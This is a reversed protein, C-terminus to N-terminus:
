SGSQIYLTVMAAIFLIFGGLIAMGKASWISVNEAAPEEGLLQGVTVKRGGVSNEILSVTTYIPGWPIGWWGAIATAIMYIIRLFNSDDHGKVYYRSYQRATFFIFSAVFSYRVLQTSRNINVGHYDIGKELIENRNEMLWKDFEEQSFPREIEVCTSYFMGAFVGSILIAFALGSLVDPFQTRGAILGNIALIVTGLLIVISITLSLWGLINRKIKM